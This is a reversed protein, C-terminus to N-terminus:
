RWPGTIDMFAIGTPTQSANAGAGIALLVRGAWDGAGMMQDHPSMLAALGTQPVFAVGPVISRPGETGTTPRLHLKSLYIKGDVNSPAAGLTTDNGSFSAAVGTYPAANHMVAGGLGSVARPTVTVGYSTNAVQGHLSGSELFTTGSNTVCSLYTSWVDGSAALAIPDGFGRVNSNRPTSSGQTGPEIAWNVARSDASMVYRVPSSNASTAKHVYGGGAVMAATPFPGTGTDVDAMSEYGVVRAATTGSDDVRLFHGSSQVDASRFAAKNTGAFPKSWGGVPAYRFTIASGTTAVGDPANTEFTISNNTRSIVRAEGNLASPTTANACLVIAREEFFVGDAFVATGVGGNVSVSIANASGWGTNLFADLAAIFTGATGSIQPAGRMTSTIWKVPYTYAM